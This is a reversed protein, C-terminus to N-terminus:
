DVKKMKPWVQILVILVLLGITIGMFLTKLDLKDETKEETKTVEISPEPSVIPTATLETKITPEPTVSPAITPTATAKALITPMVKITIIPKIQKYIVPTPTATPVLTVVLKLDDRIELPVFALTAKSFLNFLAMFLVVPVITNKM